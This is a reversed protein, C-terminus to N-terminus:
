ESKSSEAPRPDGFLERLLRLLDEPEHSDVLYDGRGADEPMSPSVLIVPKGHVARKLEQISTEIGRAMLDRHVVVADVAPFREVVEMLEAKSYATIVNFKATEIVLKRASLAGVPEPEAIIFTPRHM